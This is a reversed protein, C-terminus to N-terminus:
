LMQKDSIRVAAKQAAETHERQTRIAGPGKNDKKRAATNSQLLGRSSLSGRPIHSQIDSVCM